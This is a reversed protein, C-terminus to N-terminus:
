AKFYEWTGKLAEANLAEGNHFTVDPRLAVAWETWDDNPTFSEALHPHLNGEEDFITLTDFISKAVKLSWPAWQGAGPDWGDTETSLAYVLKGGYVPDGDVEQVPLDSTDDVDTGGTDATDGTGGCATVVLVLALGVAIGVKSM